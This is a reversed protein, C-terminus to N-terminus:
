TRQCSLLWEALGSEQYARDWSNHGLDPYVTLKASGGHGNVCAVAAESCASPVIEDLEGHFAWIPVDALHHAARMPDIWGCVPAIAAFDWLLSQALEWVGHGGQSLGTLYRRSPDTPWEGDVEDLMENLLQWYQPWQVDADMKQPIVVLCPWQEPAVRVALPLGHQSPRVNDTGSEGRGHLFLIGPTRGSEFGDPVYVTFGRDRVRLQVFEM